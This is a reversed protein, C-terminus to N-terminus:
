RKKLSIKFKLGAFYSLQSATNVLAGVEFVQDRKSKYMLSPGVGLLKEQVNWMGGAGIYVEGRPKDRITITNTVVPISGDLFVHRLPSLENQFVTDYIRIINAGMRVTDAYAVREYFKKIVTITDVKDPIHGGEIFTIEPKSQASDRVTIYVTDTKSTV